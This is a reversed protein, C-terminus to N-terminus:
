VNIDASHKRFRFVNNARSRSGGIIWTGASFNQV